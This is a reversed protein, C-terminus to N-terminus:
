INYMNVNEETCNRCKLKHAVEKKISGDDGRGDVVMYIMKM